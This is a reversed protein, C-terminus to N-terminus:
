KRLSQRLALIQDNLTQLYAADGEALPRIRKIDLAALQAQVTANHAKDEAAQAGALREEIEAVEEPTCDREKQEKAVDDWYVTKHTM